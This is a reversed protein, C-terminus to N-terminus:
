VIPGQQKGDQTYDNADSLGLSGIWGKGVRVRPLM